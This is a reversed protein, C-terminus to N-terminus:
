SWCFGNLGVVQYWNPLKTVDNCCTWWHDFRGGIRSTPIQVFCLAKWRELLKGYNVMTWVAERLCNQQHVSEGATWRCAVYGFFSRAYDLELAFKIHRRTVDHLMPQAVGMLTSNFMIFQHGNHLQPVGTEPRCPVAWSLRHLATTSRVMM